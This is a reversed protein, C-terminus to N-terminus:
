FKSESVPQGIEVLTPPVRQQKVYEPAIQEANYKTVVRKLVKANALDVPYLTIWYWSLSLRPRSTVRSREVSKEGLRQRGWELAVLPWCEM